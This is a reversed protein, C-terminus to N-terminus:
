LTVELVYLGIFLFETEFVCCVFSVFLFFWFVLINTIYEKAEGIKQRYGMLYWTKKERKKRWGWVGEFYDLCVFFAILCCFVVFCLLVFYFSIFFVCVCIWIFLYFIMSEMQTPCSNRPMPGVKLTILLGLSVGKPFISKRKGLPYCNYVAKQNSTPSQTWNLTSYNHTTQVQPLRHM